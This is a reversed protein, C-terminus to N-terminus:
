EQPEEPPTIVGLLTQVLSEFVSMAYGFQGSQMATFMMGIQTNLLDRLEQETM